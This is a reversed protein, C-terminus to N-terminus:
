PIKNNPKENLNFLSFEDKAKDTWGKATYAIGLKQHIEKDKPKLALAKNYENIAEDFM